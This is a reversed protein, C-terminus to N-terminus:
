SSPAPSPRASRRSAPATRASWRMFKAPMSISISRRRHRARRWLDQQREVVRLVPQARGITRGTIPRTATLTESMCRRGFPGAARPRQGEVVIVLGQATDRAATIGHYGGASGAICAKSRKAMRTSARGASRLLAAAGLAEPDRAGQDLRDADARPLRRRHRAGARGLLGPPSPRADDGRPFRGRAARIRDSAHARAFVSLWFGGGGASASGRRIARCTASSANAAGRQRPGAIAARSVRHNWSETFWLTKDTPRLALAMRIICTACCSRRATSAGAGCRDFARPPEEGHSRAGIRPRRAPQQRRDRLHQRGAGGRRQHPLAAAPGRGSQALDAPRRRDVAALGRGAVCVLLRGDPHFALGGATATSSPSSRARRTDRAPCVCCRGARRLCLDRRRRRRRCRRRRSDARRDPQLRGATTRASRATWRRFRM